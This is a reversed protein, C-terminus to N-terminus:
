VQSKPVVVMAVIGDIQGANSLRHREAELRVFDLSHEQDILRARKLEATCNL